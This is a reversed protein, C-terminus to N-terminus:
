EFDLVPLLDHRAIDNGKDDLVRFTNNAIIHKENIEQISDGVITFGAIRDGSNSISDFLAGKNKYPYYDVIIGNAKLYDFGELHDFTGANCYIHENIFFKHKPNISQVHPVKGLTLDIVSTIVDFGSANKILLYKVGGGTRASFEIVYLGDNKLLMQVLLPTNALAFTEAIRQVVLEISHLVQSSVPAPNIQRFIVFKNEEEIKENFSVALIKAIGNEIYADVTLEKGEIFEEIIATHSRSMKIDAEFATELENQNYVKVVGKSSNCDVPKVILPFEFGDIVETNLKNLIVFKATPIDNEAFKNKMYQKNTVNLATQYDVYCPLGLEESVKAVTLLAQDTCVTIIFDVSEKIAVNKIAEIDLTSEQYFVDCYEKAVPNEGWDALVVTINRSKLQKILEIQPFGGALVLAKM